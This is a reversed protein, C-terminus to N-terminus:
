YLKITRVLGIDCGRPLVSEVPPKNGAYCGPIVYITQSGSPPAPNIQAPRAATLEARYHALQGAVIDVPLTLTDYGAARLEIWHRGARLPLGDAAFDSLRGAFFGDVYLEADRPELDISLGGIRSEDDGASPRPDVPPAPEAVEYPISGYYGAGWSRWPRSRQWPAYRPAYTLPGADFPSAPVPRVTQGL